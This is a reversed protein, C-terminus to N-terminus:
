RVSDAAFVKRTGTRDRSPHGNFSIGNGRACPQGAPKAPFPFRTIKRLFDPVSDVPVRVHPLRNRRYFTMVGGGATARRASPGPSHGLTESSCFGDFRDKKWRVRAM